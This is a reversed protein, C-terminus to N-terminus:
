LPSHRLWPSQAFSWRQAMPVRQITRTKMLKGETFVVYENSDRDYGLFVGQKWRAALKAVENQEVQAKNLKMLVEEGFCVFARSFPKGRIREYATRGDVGRRCVNILLAAHNVIWRTLM